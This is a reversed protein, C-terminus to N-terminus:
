KLFDRSLYDFIIFLDLYYYIFIFSFVVTIVFLFTEIKTAQTYGELVSPDNPSKFLLFRIFRIYYAISVLQVFFLIFVIFFDGTLYLQWYLLFKPIFGAAPPIGAVSLILLAVCWTYVTQTTSLSSFRPLKNFLELLTFDHSPQKFFRLVVIWIGLSSVLYIVMYMLAISIGKYDNLTVALIIYSSHSISTLAWFRKFNYENLAYISSVVVSIVCLWKILICFYALPLLIYFYVKIFFVLIPLKTVIAVYSGFYGSSGQFVDGIWFYFPILAFKFLFGSLIMLGALQVIYNIEESANLFATLFSLYTFNTTGFQGYILSIGFLMLASCFAANIFYKITAEVALNSYRKLGVLVYLLISQLELSIYGLVLDNSSILILMAITAILIFIPYEWIQETQTSSFYVKHLSLCAITLILVFIKIYVSLLSSNFRDNTYYPQLETMPITYWNFETFWLGFLMAMLIFIASRYILEAFEATRWNAKYIIAFLLLCIIGNLGIIEPSYQLIYNVSINM